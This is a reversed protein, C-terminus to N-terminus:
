SPGPEIRGNNNNNNNREMTKSYHECLVRSHESALGLQELEILLQRESVGYLRGRTLIFNLAGFCARVDDIDLRQSTDARSPSKDVDFLGLDDFLKSEDYDAESSIADRVTKCLIGFDRKSWKSAHFLQALIWDPCDLKGCFEFRQL